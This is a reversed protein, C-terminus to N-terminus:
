YCSLDCAWIIFRNFPDLTVHKGFHFLGRILFLGFLKGVILIGMFDAGMVARTCRRGGREKEKREREEREGGFSEGSVLLLSM